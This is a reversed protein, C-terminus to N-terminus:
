DSRLINSAARNGNLIDYFGPEVAGGGWSPETRNHKSNKVFNFIEKLAPDNPVVVRRPLEMKSCFYEYFMGDPETRKSNFARNDTYLALPIIEGRIASNTKL